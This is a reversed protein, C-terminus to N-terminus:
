LKFLIFIFCLTLIDNSNVCKQNVACILIIMNYYITSFLILALKLSFHNCRKNKFDSGDFHSIDQVKVDARRTERRWLSEEFHLHFYFGLRFCRQVNDEPFLCLCATKFDRQDSIELQKM